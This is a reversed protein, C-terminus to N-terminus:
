DLNEWWDGVFFYISHFYHAYISYVQELHTDTSANLAQADVVAGHCQSRGDRKICIMAM